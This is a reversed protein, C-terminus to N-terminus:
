ELGVDIFVTVNIAAVVVQLDFIGGRFRLRGESWGLGEEGGASTLLVLREEKERGSSRRSVGGKRLVVKVM